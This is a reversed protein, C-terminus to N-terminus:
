GDMSRIFAAKRGYPQAGPINGTPNVDTATSSCRYGVRPCVSLLSQHIGIPVFTRERLECCKPFFDHLSYPHLM